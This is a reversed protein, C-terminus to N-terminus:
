SDEVVQATKPSRAAVVKGDDDITVGVLGRLQANPERFELTKVQIANAELVVLRRYARGFLADLTDPHQQVQSQSIVAEMYVAVMM